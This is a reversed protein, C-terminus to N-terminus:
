KEIDNEVVLHAPGGKESRLGQAKAFMSSLELRGSARSEEPQPVAYDGGKGRSVAAKISGLCAPIGVTLRPGTIMLVCM